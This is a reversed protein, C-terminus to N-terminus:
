AYQCQEVNSTIVDFQAPRCVVAYEKIRKTEADFDDWDIANLATGDRLRHVGFGTTELFPLAGAIDWINSGFLAGVSRGLLTWCLNITSCGSMMLGCTRNMWRYSRPFSDTCMVVSHSALPKTETTTLRVASECPEEINRSFYVSEGDSFMLEGLAPFAVGGIWPGHNNYVGVSVGYLPTQNVYNRTGDIPDVIILIEEGDTGGSPDLGSGSDPLRGLAIIEDLRRQHEETFVCDPHVVQSFVKVALDSLELDVDTVM